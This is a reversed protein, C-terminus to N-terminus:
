CSNPYLNTEMEEWRLIIAGIEKLEMRSSGTMDCLFSWVIDSPRKKEDEGLM